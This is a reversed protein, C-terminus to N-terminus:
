KRSQICNRIVTILKPYDGKSVIADAGANIASDEYLDVDHGTVVLVCYGMYLPRVRRILEIGDLGPLSIDVLLLDPKLVPIEELAQEATESEGVLELNPFNKRMTRKLIIRMDEHDETIYYNKCM